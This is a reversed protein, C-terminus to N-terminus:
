SASSITCALAFLYASLRNLFPIGPHGPSFRVLSREARRYVARALHVFGDPVCFAFPAANPPSLRDTEAELLPVFDVEYPFEAYGAINASLSVVNRQLRVFFAPDFAAGGDPAMAACPTTRVVGLWSNLEDLDGLVDFVLADKRVRGGKVSSEGSDGTRTYARM